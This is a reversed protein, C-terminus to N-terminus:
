RPDEGVEKVRYEGGLRDIPLSPSGDELLPNFDTAPKILSNIGWKVGGGEGEKEEGWPAQM